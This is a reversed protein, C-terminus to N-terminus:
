RFCREIPIVVAENLRLLALAVERKGLETPPPLDNLIGSLITADVMLRQHNGARM